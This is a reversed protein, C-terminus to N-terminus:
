RQVAAEAWDLALLEEISNVGQELAQRLLRRPQDEEFICLPQVRGRQFQQAEQLWANGAQGHQDKKGAAAFGDRRGVEGPASLFEENWRLPALM